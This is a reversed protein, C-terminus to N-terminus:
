SGRGEKQKVKSTGSRYRKEKEIERITTGAARAIEVMNATGKGGPFAIVLDPKWLQLMKRNRIMGAARGYTRWDADERIHGQVRFQAWRRAFRDAGTAGGEIVTLPGKERLLDDLVRWVLAEDEYDRGGCVLVRM